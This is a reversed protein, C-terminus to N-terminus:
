LETNTNRTESPDNKRIINVIVVATKLHRTAATFLRETSPSLTTINEPGDPDHTGTIHHTYYTVARTPALPTHSTNCM